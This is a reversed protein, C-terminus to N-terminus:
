RSSGRLTTKPTRATLPGSTMRVSAAPGRATSSCGIEDRSLSPVNEIDATNIVVLNVPPGWPAEVTARQSVWLDFGGFGGPRDSGFYLSLGDKSLAPGGDAFSSNITAGLNVPESWPSYDPAAIPRSLLLPVFLLALAFALAFRGLRM